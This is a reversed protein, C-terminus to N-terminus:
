RRDTEILDALPTGDVEINRHLGSIHGQTFTIPDGIPFGIAAVPDGVAPSSSSLQFHYGHLPQQPRVLAFDRRPDIGIVSGTTRQDGDMLSVVVSDAVVHAM